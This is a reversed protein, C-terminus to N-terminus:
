RGSFRSMMQLSSERCTLDGFKTHSSHPRLEALTYQLWNYLTVHQLPFLLSLGGCM